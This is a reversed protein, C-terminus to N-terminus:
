ADVKTIITKINAKQARKIMDWTGISNPGPFALVLDVDEEDLMQQNRIPGARNGYQNWDAPYVRTEIEFLGAWFGATWDVGHAGGHVFVIDRDDEYESLAELIVDRIMYIKRFKRSGSFLVTLKKSM